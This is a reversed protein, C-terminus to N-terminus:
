SPPHGPGDESRDDRRESIRCRPREPIQRDESRAGLARRGEGDQVRSHRNGSDVLVTEFVEDLDHTEAPIHQFYWVIKGTDADIALTCNTYLAAGDTGRQAIVWPKAQATSWFILNSESDYSGPIWADAGARQRLPLDGWTDGGPEGPQAITATRWLEKGTHPDHASIFCVDDKYRECGTMGAIVKGNAIIPGSTYQYGLARDAVRQRWVLAGTRADLAILHADSTGAIIKDAYIAISRRAIGFTGPPTPERFTTVEPSGRTAAPRSSYEWLTRGTAADLARIGTVTPWYMVGNYVLPTEQGSGSPATATWVLQLRAVNRRTIKDLPSYGWGDSTRRWHLWDGPDPRQLRADTVPVFERSQSSVSGSLGACLTVAVLSFRTRRASSHDTRM